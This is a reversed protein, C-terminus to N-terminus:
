CSRAESVTGLRLARILEWLASEYHFIQSALLGDSIIM